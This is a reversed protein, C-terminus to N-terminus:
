DPAILECVADAVNAWDRIEDRLNHRNEVAWIVLQKTPIGLYSAVRHKELEVTRVGIDMLSAIRKDLEGVSALLCILRQRDTLWSFSRRTMRDSGLQSIKTGRPVCGVTRM